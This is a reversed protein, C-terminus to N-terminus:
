GRSTNRRKHEPTFSPNLLADQHLSALVTGAHALDEATFRALQAALWDAAQDGSM